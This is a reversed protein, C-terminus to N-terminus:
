GAVGILKSLRALQRDLPTPDRNEEGAARATQGIETRDGVASVELVGRGDAVLTGRLLRNAAYAAETDEEGPEVQKTAPVSEGTLRSEDIQLNVAELLTGDAPVEEGLELLLVDGVVVDRK